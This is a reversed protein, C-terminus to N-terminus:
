APTAGSCRGSAPVCPHRGRDVADDADLDVGDFAAHVERPAVADDLRVRAVLRRETDVKADWCGTAGHRPVPTLLPREGPVPLGITAPVRGDDHVDLLGDEPVTDIAVYIDEM